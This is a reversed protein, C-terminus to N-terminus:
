EVIKLETRRNKARGQETENSAMPASEGYGVAILREADIGKNVLYLKVAEAREQSLTKNFTDDGVNDTHGGLEVTIDTNNKVFQYLRELEPMSTEMLVDKGFQFFLNKLVVKSGVVLKELPVIKEYAVMSSDAVLDFYDSYFLYGDHQVTIGYRKGLPLCLMVEGNTGTKSKALTSDADVDTLVYNANLPKRTQKDFVRGKFYTTPMPRIADSLDLSFIDKDRKGEILGDSAFYGTTGSSGVIFGTENQNTNIPYGLNIPKSWSEDINRRSMFIDQRGMGPHGNSSFYLTMNDQHIFPSIEDEPTNIQRGLNYVNSFGLSGDYREEINAVWIDRGGLGGHRESVFYLQTGDASLSPHSDWFRTNIPQPCVIPMSWTGNRKRSYYIDCSGYGDIKSCASFFMLTGDSSLSQAGENGATNLPPGMNRSPSWGADTMESVFFDEHTHMVTTYGPRRGVNVTFVLEKEDGRLSPWYDDFETNLAGLHEPSYDVPNKMAEVAFECNLIGKKVYSAFATRQKLQPVLSKFGELAPEYKGAEMQAWALRFKAHWFHPFNQNCAKELWYLRRDDDRRYEYIDAMLWYAETHSPVKKLVKTVIKEAEDFHRMVMLQSAEQMKAHIKPSIKGQGLVSFSILLFAIIQTISKKM